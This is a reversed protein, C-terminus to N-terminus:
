SVHKGSQYYAVVGVLFVVYWFDRVLQTGASLPPDLETTTAAGYLYGGFFLAMLVLAMMGAAILAREIIRHERIASRLTM